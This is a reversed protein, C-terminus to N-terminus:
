GREGESSEGTARSVSTLKERDAVTMWTMARDLRPSWVRACLTLFFLSLGIVLMQSPSIAWGIMTCIFATVPLSWDRNTRFADIGLVVFLATLAFEMGQLGDPMASGALAGIIGSIVWCSQCFIQATLVSGGTHGRENPAIAYAEDITAYTSYARALKGRFGKPSILHRPFTLGYFIHRFNVMFATLGAGVLGTNAMILGIALFEMSGAFIVISLVPAWWWAFGTQTVLAGFALGLPVLGLGVTWSASIGHRVEDRVGM